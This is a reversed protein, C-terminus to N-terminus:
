ANTTRVEGQTPLTQYGRVQRIHQPYNGKLKCGITIYLIKFEVWIRSQGTITKQKCWPAITYIDNLSGFCEDQLLLTLNWKILTVITLESLSPMSDILGWKMDVRIVLAKQGM